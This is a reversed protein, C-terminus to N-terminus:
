TTVLNVRSGDLSMSNADITYKEPTSTFTCSKLSARSMDTVDVGTKNSSFKCGNLIGSSMRSLKVATGSNSTVFKSVNLDVSSNETADVAVDREDGGTTNMTFVNTSVSNYQVFKSRIMQICKHAATVTLGSYKAAIILESDKLLIDINSKMKIYRANVFMKSADLIIGHNGDKINIDAGGFHLISDKAYLSYTGYDDYRYDPLGSEGRPVIDTDISSVNVNSNYFRAVSHGKETTTIDSSTRGTITVDGTCNVFVLGARTGSSTAKYSVDGSVESGFFCVPRGTFYVGWGFSIKKCKLIWEDGSLDYINSGGPSGNSTPNIYISNASTYMRLTYGEMEYAGGFVTNRHVSLDYTGDPDFQIKHVCDTPPLTKIANLAGSLTQFEKTLVGQTNRYTTGDVYGAGVKYLLERENAAGVANELGDVRNALLGFETESAYPLGTHDFGEQNGNHAAAIESMNVLDSPDITLSKDEWVGTSGNYKYIHGCFYPESDYGVYLVTKGNPTTGNFDSRQTYLSLYGESVASRVATALDTIADATHTHNKKALTPHRESANLADNDHAHNSIATQIASAFDGFSSIQDQWVPYTVGNVETTLGDYSYPHFPAFTQGTIDDTIANTGIYYVLSPDFMGASTTVPMTRFETLTRFLKPFDLGLLANKKMYVPHPDPNSMHRALSDPDIDNEPLNIRPFPKKAM